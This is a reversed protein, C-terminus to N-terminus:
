GDRSPDEHGSGPPNVPSWFYVSSWFYQISRVMTVFGEIGDPKTIYSSANLRYALDVDDHSASGTLVVVPIGRLDDDRKIESLVEMGDMGPLNLDLFVLNPRPAEAYPGERRLFGLASVGDEVVSLRSRFRGEKLAEKMLRVDGPNDEVLLIEVIPPESEKTASV